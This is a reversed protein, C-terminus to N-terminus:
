IKGAIEQAWAKAKEPKLTDKEEGPQIWKEPIKGPFSILSVVNLNYKNVQPKLFKEVAQEPDKIATGSSLFLFLRKQKLSKQKLVKKWRRYVMFMKVGTGVIINDYPKMDPITDKLNIFDVEISNKRLTEAIIQAYKESAGEKTYYAVITTTTM